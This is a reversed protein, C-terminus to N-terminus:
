EEVEIKVEGDANAVLTKINGEWLFFETHSGVDFTTMEGPHQLIRTYYRVFPKVNVPKEANCKAIYADIERYVEELTKCDAIQKMKGQSNKFWLKM